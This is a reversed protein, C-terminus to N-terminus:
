ASGAGWIRFGFGELDIDEGKEGDAPGGREVTMRLFAWLSFAEGFHDYGDADSDSEVLWRWSRREIGPDAEEQWGKLIRAVTQLATRFAKPDRLHVRIADFNSEPEESTLQRIAEFLKHEIAASRWPSWLYFTVHPTNIPLGFLDIQM